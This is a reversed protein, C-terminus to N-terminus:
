RRRPGTPSRACPRSTTTGARPCRGRRPRSRSPSRSRGAATPSRRSCPAGSLAPASARVPRRVAAVRDGARRADGHELRDLGLTEDGVGPEAAGLQGAAQALQHGLEGAIPSTRPGPRIIPTSNTRSRVVRSGSPAVASATAARAASSPRSSSVQPIWWWTIRQIGGISTVRPRSRPPAPCRRARAGRTAVRAAGTLGRPRAHREGVPQHEGASTRATVTVTGRPTDATIPLTSRARGSPMRTPARGASRDQRGGDVDVVVLLRSVPRGKTDTARTVVSATQAPWSPTTRSAPASAQRDHSSGGRSTSGARSRADHRPERDRRGERHAPRMLSSKGVPGTWRATGYRTPGCRRRRRRVRRGEDLRRPHRPGGDPQGQRRARPGVAAPRDRVGERRAVAPEGRAVRAGARPGHPQDGVLHRRGHRGRGAAPPGEDRGSGGPHAGDPERDDVRPGRRVLERSFSAANLAMRRVNTLLDPTRNPSRWEPAADPWRTLAQVLLEYQLHEDNLGAGRVNTHYPQLLDGLFHALLGIERSAADFAADAGATDGAEQAEVGDRHFQVAAAYHETIRQVAGGRVGGDRYIHDIKRAPNAVVEVNDPDDSVVLATTRHFWSVDEDSLVRLGEDIIWDHTGYGDGKGNSWAAAPAPATVLGALMVAGLLAALRPAAPRAPARLRPTPSRM